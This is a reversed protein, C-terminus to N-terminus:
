SAPKLLVGAQKNFATMLNTSESSFVKVQSIQNKKISFKLSYDCSFNKHNTEHYRKVNNGKNQSLLKKCILCLPTDGKMTFAWDDEYEMKFSRNEKEYKRKKSSKLM